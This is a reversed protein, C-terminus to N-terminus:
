QYTVETGTGRPVRRPEPQARRGHRLGAAWMGGSGRYSRGLVERGERQARLRDGTVRADDRACHGSLAGIM